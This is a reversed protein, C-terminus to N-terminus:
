ASEKEADDLKPTIGFSESQTIRLGIEALQADDLQAKLADKVPETKTRLYRDAFAKGRAQIAEIVQDWTWRRSLPVIAPKGLTIGYTALETEATKREGPFLEARNALAFKECARLTDAIEEKLAEIPERNHEQARQIQADRAAELKRLQTQLRAVDNVASEFDAKDTYTTAKLRPM